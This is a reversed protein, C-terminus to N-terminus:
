IRAKPMARAELDVLQDVTAGAAIERKLTQFRIHHM